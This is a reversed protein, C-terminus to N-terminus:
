KEDEGLLSQLKHPHGARSEAASLPVPYEGDNSCTAMFMVVTPSSMPLFSTENRLSCDLRSLSREAYIEIPALQNWNMM